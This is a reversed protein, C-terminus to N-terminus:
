NMGWGGPMIRAPLFTSVGTVQDTAADLVWRLFRNKYNERVM